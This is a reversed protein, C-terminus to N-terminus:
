GERSLRRSDGEHLAVDLELAVTALFAPTDTDVCAADRRQALLTTM